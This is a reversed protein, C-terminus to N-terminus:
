GAQPPGQRVRAAVAEPDTAAWLAEIWWTAGAAAFPAVVAQQAARDAGPTSGEVIIDISRGDPAHADLWPRMEGVDAPTVPRHQGDPGLVNPLFGDCKLVRAMSPTRGWAGVMWIPIHPRSGRQQVPAPAPHFSHERIQYHTGSFSFPQGAWLGTLIELSEDLLGARTKRDTPFGFNGFGTDPAGLGASLIVRGGSLVDLTATEAALKWPQRIPVPTLLTGLRIRRTQAAIAGLTVWPDVSWVAEWMFFADWGSEEASRALELAKAPDAGPYVFGFNM